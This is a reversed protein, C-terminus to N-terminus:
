ERGLLMKQLASRRGDKVSHLMCGWRLGAHVSWRGTHPTMSIVGSLVARGGQWLQLATSQSLYQVFSVESTCFSPSGRGITSLSSKLWMNLVSVAAMRFAVSSLVGLVLSDGYVLCHHDGSSAVSRWSFRRRALM